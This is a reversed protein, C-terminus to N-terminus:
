KSAIRNKDELTHQIILKQIYLEREKRKGRARTALARGGWSGRLSWPAGPREGGSTM